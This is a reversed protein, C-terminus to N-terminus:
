VDFFSWIGIFAILYIHEFRKGIFHDPFHVIKQRLNISLKDVLNKGSAFGVIECVLGIEKMEDRLLVKVHRLGDKSLILSRHIVLFNFIGYNTLLDFLDLNLDFGFNCSLFIVLGLELFHKFLYFSVFIAFFSDEVLVFYVLELM